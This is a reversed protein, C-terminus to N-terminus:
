CKVSILTKGKCLESGKLFVVENSFNEDARQMVHPVM